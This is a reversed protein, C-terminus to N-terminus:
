FHINLDTNVIFYCSVTMQKGEHEIQKSLITLVLSNKGEKEEIKYTNVTIDDNKLNM